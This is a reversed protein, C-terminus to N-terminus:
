PEVSGYFQSWFVGQDDMRCKAARVVSALDAAAEDLQDNIILYDYYRGVAIEQEARRLRIALQEESDTKRALLRRKLEALTPPLIFVLIAQPFNKKIQSAGEVDVDALVNIGRDLRELVWSRGTGYYRGFVEAWELFEDRAIMNRFREQDIFHYDRGDIEGPRPSRTTYSVSYALEPFITQLRLRLTTKGAGSPASIVLLRAM